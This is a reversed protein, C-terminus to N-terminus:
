EQNGKKVAKATAEECFDWLLKWEGEDRAKATRLEEKASGVYKQRKWVPAWYEGHINKERITKSSSLFVQTKAADQASNRLFLGLFSKIGNQFKPSVKPQQNNGIETKPVNGVDDVVTILIRDKENRLSNISFFFLSIGPHCANVFVNRVGRRNWLEQDLALALYLVALKSDLYRQFGGGLHSFKTGDNPIRTTLAKYDLKKAAKYGHSSTFTIRAEGHQNATREVLDSVM